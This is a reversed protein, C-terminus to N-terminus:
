FERVIKMEGMFSYCKPEQTFSSSPRITAGSDLKCHLVLGQRLMEERIARMAAYHERFKDALRRLEEDTM